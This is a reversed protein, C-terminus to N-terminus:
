CVIWRSTDRVDEQPHDIGLAHFDNHLAHGVLLKGKLLKEVAERVSDLPPADKLNHPRVGSYRTRLFQDHLGNDTGKKSNDKVIMQGIGLLFASSPLCVHLRFHKSRNSCFFSQLFIDFLHVFFGCLKGMGVICCCVPLEYRM